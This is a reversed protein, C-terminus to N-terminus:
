GAPLRFTVRGGPGPHAWIQGGHAEIVGKAIALGLGAGGTDRNRSPEGRTFREFAGALVARDFGPGQDIVEVTAADGNAVRVVVHSRAPAYRIANDVLNRMVRGLAEPGGRVPVRGNAELHLEVHRGTAVPTMAELTEDALEALDVVHRDVAIDGAEIRALLFLDDVVARLHAIDHGMSRLYRHADTAVGDQLAEVAAQLASLPTRLDHGIAALLARRADDDQRRREEASALRDIMADLAEATAGLEDARRVGSRATLDGAAVQDTTRRLAALDRRLSRTIGVAFVVSLGAVVGLMVGLLHLDHVSLFMQWAGATVGLAILGAAVLGVASVTHGLSRTRATVVPVAVTAAVTLIAMVAFLVLADVRDRGTPHMVVELAAMGAAVVVLATAVTARV